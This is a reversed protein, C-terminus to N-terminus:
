AAIAVAEAQAPAGIAEELRRAIQDILEACRRAADLEGSDGWGAVYPIAEGSTDLGVATAAVHGSIEVVVEEEAYSLSVDDRDVLAHALEHLLTRLRANVPASAEVVIRGGKPSYYGGAAGPISEYAVACGLEGALRELAPLHEAHSDGTIPESAPALEVADPGPEVQVRDFVPVSRFGVVAYREEGTEEDEVKRRSPALIRIAKEGRRVQYGHEAWWRYGAVCSPSFGRRAGEFAILLQNGFSYRSLGNQRRIEVWRQWGESTILQRAAQEIRERNRRRREEREEPTLQRRPM